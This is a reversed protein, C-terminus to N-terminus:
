FFPRSILELGLVMLFWLFFLRFHRTSLRTRIAQGLWMGLLAPVVALSSLGLQDVRFAGQLLLGGALALTSVTFSLGLAQVLEDKGLRLAQLYPVAPMVFVGTAGTILGTVIGVLPSLRAEWRAPVSVVPSVLAYSAYVLLACGLGFASWSPDVRVLLATSSLTGVLIGLAMPWLRRFLSATAPGALCQWVNTVLSPIVLLAAAAVPSMLTVLLGMAVTPLGMGTVGKVMGAVLFILMLPLLLSLSETM